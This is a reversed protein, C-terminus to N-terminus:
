SIIQCLFTLTEDLFSYCLLMSKFSPGARRTSEPGASGPSSGPRTSSFIPSSFVRHARNVRCSGTLFKTAVRQNKKKKSFCRRKSKLFFISGSSGTVRDFSPIRVNFWAAWRAPRFVICLLFSITKAIAAYCM